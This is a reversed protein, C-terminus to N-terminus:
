GYPGRRVISIQFADISHFEESHLVPQGGAMYDIQRLALIPTGSKVELRRMIDGAAPIARVQAVGYAVEIGCHDKLWRYFAVDPVLPATASEVIRADLHDITVVVPVDDATRTRSLVTVEAGPELELAESVEDPAPIFRIETERTGHQRGSAEIMERVGYNEDLPNRLVPPRLVTTGRRQRRLILGERELRALADRLTARSVGLTASLTPEPPLQSGVPYAGSAVARRLRDAVVAPLSGSAPADTAAVGQAPNNNPM